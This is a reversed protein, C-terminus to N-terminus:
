GSALGSSPSSASRRSASMGEDDLLEAKSRLLGELDAWRETEGYLRELTDIVALDSPDDEISTRTPMWRRTPSASCTTM